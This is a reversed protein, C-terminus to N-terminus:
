LSVLPRQLESLPETYGIPYGLVIEEEELATYGSSASTYATHVLYNLMMLTFFTAM